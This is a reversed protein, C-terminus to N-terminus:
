AEKKKRIVPIGCIVEVVEDATDALHVHLRGLMRKYTETARDYIRGDAFVDDSVIILTGFGKRLEDVDALIREFVDKRYEPSAVDERQQRHDDDDHTVGGAFLENALLTSLAELLIYNTCEEAVSGISQSCEITHFNFNKRHARHKEIRAVAERHGDNEMTALYTLRCDKKTEGGAEAAIRQEAYESKGSASGGIVLILKKKSQTMM